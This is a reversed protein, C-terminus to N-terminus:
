AFWGIIITLGSIYGLPFALLGILATLTSDIIMYYFFHVLLPSVALSYCISTIYEDM